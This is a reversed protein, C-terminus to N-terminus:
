PGVRAPVDVSVREGERLLFTKGQLRAREQLQPDFMATAELAGILVASYRGPPFGRAEFRGDPQIPVFRVYRVSSAGPPIADAVLLVGAGAINLREYPVTGAVVTVKDTLVIRVDVSVGHTMPDFPADTVDIGGATISKLMYGAPASVQLMVPGIIGGLEFAGDSRMEDRRFLAVRVQETRNALVPQIDLQAFSAPSAGEVTVRGTITTAPGTTLRVDTVDGGAVTLSTSAFEPGGPQKPFSDGPPFPSVLLTYDGPPVGEFTFEGGDRMNIGLSMGQMPSSQPRLTIPLGYAAPRGRSDFVQGSVRALRMPLLQLQITAEEALGLRVPVAESANPTGPYFTQALTASRDPGQESATGSVIYEGPELGFVRFQGLDDTVARAGSTFGEPGFMLVGSPPSAWDVTRPVQLTRQGTATYGFKMLAVTARLVPEGYENTLRGTIASGRPLLIDLGTLEEGAGITIIESRGPYSKQGYRFPLYGVKQAMLLYRGPPVAAFAYRGDIDTAVTQRLKSAVASLEIDVLRAPIGDSTVVRGRLSGSGAGRRDRPPSQAFATAAVLVAVLALHWRPMPVEGRSVRRHRVEIRRTWAGVRERRRVAGGGDLDPRHQHRGNGVRASRGCAM